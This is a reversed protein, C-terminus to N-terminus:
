SDNEDGSVELVFSVKPHLYSSWSRVTGTIPLFTDDSFRIEFETQRDLLNEMIPAIAVKAPDLIVNYRGSEPLETLQCIRGLCVENKIHLYLSNPRLWNHWDSM